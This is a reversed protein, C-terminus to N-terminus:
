ASPATKALWEGGDVVLIAGTIWSAAPSMLFAVMNGIDAPAGWRQLPIAKKAYSAMARDVAFVDPVGEATPPPTFAKRVGETPIPGPAIANVRVRDRAWEVALTRTLADIGAKAATAHAMLPWGRYHLTMSINVISGGGQGRMVPLVAQSCFFTGYLDIEVVSKWANATLTESPAYFNGAANNVLLDIRGHAERVQAVVQQVREAERVDVAVASARGGAARIEAAAADVREQKRSALVVHAGLAALTDAIGRGIGSGGGTIVAVQRDFLGPRFVDLPAAPPM